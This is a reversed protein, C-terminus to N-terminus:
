APFKLVIEPLDGPAGPTFIKWMADVTNQEFTQDPRRDIHVPGKARTVTLNPINLFHVVGDTEPFELYIETSTIYHVKKPRM